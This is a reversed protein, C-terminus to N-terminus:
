FLTPSPTQMATLWLQENGMNELWYGNVVYREVADLIYGHMHVPLFTIMNNIFITYEHNESKAQQQFHVFASIVLHANLTGRVNGRWEKKMQEDQLYDM